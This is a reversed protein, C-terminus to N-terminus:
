RATVPLLEQFSRDDHLDAFLSDIPLLVTWPEGRGAAIRLEDVVARASEGLGRRAYARLYHQTRLGAVDGRALFRQAPRPDGSRGAVYAHLAAYSERPEAAWLSRLHRAAADYRGMVAHMRALEFRAFSFEPDLELVEDLHNVAQERAGDFFTVVGLTTQLELADPACGLAVRVHDMAAPLDGEVLAHWAAFQHATSWTPDMSLAVDFSAKAARLDRKAFLHLDALTAHVEPLTPDLALARHAAAYADQFAEAPDRVLYEGLLLHVDAIGAHARAFDPDIRLAREFYRASRQLSASTRHRWLYRGRAVLALVDLDERRRPQAGRTIQEIEAAVAAIAAARYRFFTRPSLHTAAAVADSTEGEVDISRVIQWYVPPYGTLAREAARLIADRVSATGALSALARGLEDEELVGPTRLKRLLQRVRRYGWEM